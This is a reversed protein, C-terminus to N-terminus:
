ANAVIDAAARLEAAAERLEAAGGRDGSGARLREAVADIRDARYRLRGLLERLQELKAALAERLERVAELREREEESRTSDRLAIAEKMSSRWWRLLKARHDALTNLAIAMANVEDRGIPDTPIRESPNERTMRDTLGAMRRLPRVIRNTILAALAAGLLAAALAIAAALRTRKASAEAMESGHTQMARSADALNAEALPTIRNVARYMEETLQAIRRDQEVLSLFDRRYGELLGLLADKQDEAVASADIRQRIGDAIGQVMDVYAADGRLLYDKERRRMQLIEAELGPVHHSSLLAEIRHAADRFPGKGGEIAEGALVDDAYDELAARYAAVEELLRAKMPAALESAEVASAMETTLARVRELYRQERRLGLDKEGRRSQLLLLYLGDVNYHGAREELEHVARRFAGQLGSTEDLGRIRWAEVIADFRSVFETTLARVQEATARSPRDIDALKAAQEQLAAAQARAEAALALDRDRLFREEAHLMHVLHSEIAFARAQREGYIGHLRQYDDVVGRLSMDYYWIVALFILAVAGFGLGIKEGIRLRTALKSM